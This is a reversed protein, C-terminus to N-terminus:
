SNSLYKEFSLLDDYNDIDFNQIKKNSEFGIIKKGSVSKLKSITSTKIIDINGNHIYYDGLLQAPMNADYENRIKKFNTINKILLNKEFKYIKQIKKEIKSVSRLSDYKLYNNCMLKIAKNTDSLIRNPSTPRFHIILDPTKINSKKIWKLFHDFVDFDTSLNESLKKPRLFPAEAGYKTSIKQYIKSDTSVFTRDIMKCNLSHNITFAILPLGGVYKINKNKIRKSGSRAPILSYILNNKYM